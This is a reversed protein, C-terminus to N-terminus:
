NAKFYEEHVIKGNEWVSRIIEHWLIESGDKMEFNFTFEAFSTNNNVASHHLTIEKVDAIAGAFGTMKAIMEPKTSTKTGDFDSTQAHQAFYTETAEVIRGQKLLDNKEAVLNNLTTEM